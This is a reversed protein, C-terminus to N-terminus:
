PIMCAMNKAADLLEPDISNLGALMILMSIPMDRWVKGILSLCLATFRTGRWNVPESLVGPFPFYHGMLIHNVHGGPYDFLVYILMATVLAPLALPILFLSRIVNRLMFSRYLLSALALGAFLELPTGLLTFLGTNILAERFQRDGVIGTLTSLSPVTHNDYSSSFSLILLYVLVIIQFGVLYLVAPLLPWVKSLKDRWSELSITMVQENPFSM